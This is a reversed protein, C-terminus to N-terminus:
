GGRRQQKDGRSRRSRVVDVRPLAAADDAAVYTPALSPHILITDDKPYLLLLHSWRGRSSSPPPRAG